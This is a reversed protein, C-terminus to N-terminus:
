QLAAGARYSMLRGQYAVSDLSAAQDLRDEHLSFGQALMYRNFAPRNGPRPRRDVGARRARRGIFRALLGGDDREYLLDSGIIM